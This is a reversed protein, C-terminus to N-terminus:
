MDMALYLTPRSSPLLMGQHKKFRNYNSELIRRALGWSRVQLHINNDDLDMLFTSLLYQMNVDGDIAIISSEKGSNKILDTLGTSDQAMGVGIDHVLIDVNNKSALADVETSRLYECTRDEFMRTSKAETIYM